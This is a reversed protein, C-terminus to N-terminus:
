PIILHTLGWASYHRADSYKHHSIESLVPLQAEAQVLQHVINLSRAEASSVEKSITLHAELRHNPDALTLSIQSHIM